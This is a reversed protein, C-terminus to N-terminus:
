SEASINIDKILGGVWFTGANYDAFAGSQKFLADFGLYRSSSLSSIDMWSNNNADTIYQSSTKTACVSDSCSYVNLDLRSVGKRYLDKIEGTSLARNWITVEDISGNFSEKTTSGGITNGGITYTNIEYNYLQESLTNGAVGNVYFTISSGTYILAVQNWIGTLVKIDSDYCTYGWHDLYLEYQGVACNGSTGAIGFFDGEESIGGTIIPLGYGTNSNPKVWAVITRAGSVTTAGSISVCDDTGDFDFCNTSWLCSVNEDNDFGSPIGDNNNASADEFDSSADGANLHWLGVLNVDFWKEGSSLESNFQYNIDKNVKAQNWDATSGADVVDANVFKANIWGNYDAQVETATLARNWIAVEDISGNFYHNDVNDHKGITVHQTEIINLNSLDRQAVYQGNLFVMEKSGNYTVVIHSWNNLPVAVGTDWDSAWHSVQINGNAYKLGIFMLQKSAESGWSIICNYNTAPYFSTPKVWAGVTWNSDGVPINTVSSTQVYGNAGNFYGANSDWLGLANTDAGNTLTGNNDHGAADDIVAGNKSNFKYYAVLGNMDRNYDSSQYSYNAGTNWDLEGTPTWASDQRKYLFGNFDYDHNLSSLYFWVPQVPVPPVPVEPSVEGSVYGVAVKGGQKRFFIEGNLDSVMLDLDKPIIPADVFTNPDPWVMISSYGKSVTYYQNAYYFYDSFSSNDDMLYVNNINRALRFAAEQAKGQVSYTSNIQARSQFIMIGFLFVMSIIVASMMFEISIQGRLFRRGAFIEMM